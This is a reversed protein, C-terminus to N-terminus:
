FLLGKIIIDKIEKELYETLDYKIKVMLELINDINKCIFFHKTYKKKLIKVFKKIWFDVDYLGMDYAKDSIKEFSKEYEEPLYLRIINDIYDYFYQQWFQNDGGIVYAFIEWDTHPLAKRVIPMPIKYILDSFKSHALRWIYALLGTEDTDWYWGGKTLSGLSGELFGRKREPYYYLTAFEKEIIIQKM